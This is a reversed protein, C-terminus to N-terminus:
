EVIELLPYTYSDKIEIQNKLFNMVHQGCNSGIENETIEGISIIVEYGLKKIKKVLENNKYSITNSSNLKNKIANFTPNVPTIKILYKNPNFYKLLEDPEVISDDALAFSLTVKKQNSSHFLDGYKAMKEFSWTKIPILWNRQNIDTSHISFQFQFNNIYYKEKIRLLKEFFVDTGNPAITSLSPYLGPASYRTPIEELVELVAPNFSPEGMRSFQIKFKKVPVINDSFHNKILYDIQFLIDDKKLNGNFFSGADCFRCSSPCGYLTSIILVWKEDFKFPPPVSEVFEILNGNDSQAVFVTALKNNETKAIVRL